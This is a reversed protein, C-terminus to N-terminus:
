GTIVRDMSNYGAKFDFMELAVSEALSQLFGLVCRTTCPSAKAERLHLLLDWIYLLEM